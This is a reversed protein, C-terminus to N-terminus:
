CAALAGPNPSVTVGVHCPYVLGVTGFCPAKCTYLLEICALTAHYNIIVMLKEGRRGEEGGGRTGGLQEADDYEVMFVCACVKFRSLFGDM